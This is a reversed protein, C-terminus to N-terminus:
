SNVMKRFFPNMEMINGYLEKRHRHLTSQIMLSLDPKKGTGYWYTTWGGYEIYFKEPTM